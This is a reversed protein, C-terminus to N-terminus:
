RAIELGKEDRLGKAHAHGNDLYRTLTESVKDAAGFHLPPLCVVGAVGRLTGLSQMCINVWSGVQEASPDFRQDGMGIAAERNCPFQGIRPQIRNRYYEPDQDRKERLLKRKTTTCFKKFSKCCVGVYGDVVLLADLGRM